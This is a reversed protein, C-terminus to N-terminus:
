VLERRLAGGRAVPQRDFSRSEGDPALFREEDQDAGGAGEARAQITSITGQMQRELSTSLFRGHCRNVPKAGGPVM